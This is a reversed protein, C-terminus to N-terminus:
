RLAITTVDRLCYLWDLVPTEVEVWQPHAPFEGFVWHNCPNEPSRLHGRIVLVAGQSAGMLARSAGM